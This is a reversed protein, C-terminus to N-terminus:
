FTGSDIDSQSGGGATSMRSGDVFEVAKVFITGDTRVAFVTAGNRDKYSMLSNQKNDYLAM